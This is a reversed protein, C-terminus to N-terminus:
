AAESRAREALECADEFRARRGVIRGNVKVRWRGDKQLSVGLVGTKSNSQAAARNRCNERHSVARLHSPNVCLAVHCLHDIDLGVAPGAVAEHILRHARWVRGDVRM